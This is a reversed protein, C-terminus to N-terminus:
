RRARRPLAVVNGTVPAPPQGVITRLHAAWAELAARIEPEYRHQDYIRQLGRRAHGLVMEAVHDDVRLASLRSRVVRRLDHLVWPVLRVPGPDDGRSRALAKLTRAM